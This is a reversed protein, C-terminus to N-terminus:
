ELMIKADPFYGASFVAVFSESANPIHVTAVDIMTDTGGVFPEHVLVM